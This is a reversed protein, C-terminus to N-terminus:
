GAGASARALLNREPGFLHQDHGTREDHFQGAFFADAGDVGLVARDPLAQPALLARVHATEDDGRASAGEPRTRLEVEVVHGHLLRQVMGTPRHAWLDGDVRRGQHVLAELDDLRVVKEAQGQVRDRDADMGLADDVGQDLEDIAGQLGLKPPRVHPQGDRDGEGVRVAQGACDGRRRDGLEAAQLEMVQVFGAKGAHSEGALRRRLAAAVRRDQVRGVLLRHVGEQGALDREAADHARDLPREAGEGATPARQLLDELGVGPGPAIDPLLIPNTRYASPWMSPSRTTTPTPPINRRRMAGCSAPWKANALSNPTLTISNEIPAPARSHDVVRPPVRYAIRAIGIM